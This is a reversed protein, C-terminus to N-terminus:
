TRYALAVFFMAMTFLVLVMIFFRFGSAGASDQKDPDDYTRLSKMFFHLMLGGLAFAIFAVPLVRLMLSYFEEDASM